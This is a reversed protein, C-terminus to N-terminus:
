LNRHRARAADRSLGGVLGGSRQVTECLGDAWPPKTDRAVHDRENHNQESSPGDKKHRADHKKHSERVLLYETGLIFLRQSALLIPNSRRAHDVCQAVAALESM